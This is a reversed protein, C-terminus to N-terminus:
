YAGMMEMLETDIRHGFSEIEGDIPLGMEQRMAIRYAEIEIGKRILAERQKHINM